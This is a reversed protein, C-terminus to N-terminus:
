LSNLSRKSDRLPPVPPVWGSTVSENHINMVTRESLVHLLMDQEWSPLKQFKDRWGYNSFRFVPRWDGSISWPTPVSVTRSQGPPLVGFLGPEYLNLGAETVEGNRKAEYSYLAYQVVKSSGQNTVCFVASTVPFTGDRTTYTLTGNSVLGVFSVAVQIESPPRTMLWLTWCGIALPVALRISRLGAKRPTM